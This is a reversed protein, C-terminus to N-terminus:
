GLVCMGRFTLHTHPPPHLQTNFISVKAHGGWVHWGKLHNEKSGGERTNM